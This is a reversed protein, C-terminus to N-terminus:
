EMSKLWAVTRTLVEQYPRHTYGLEREAKSVDYYGYRGFYTRAHRRTFLPPKGTLKSVMELLLGAVLGSRRGARFRPPRHGSLRAITGLMEAITINDGGLIYREGARGKEEALLHGTAVDEVDVVNAGGDYYFPSGKFMAQKVIANSPTLRYDGPGLVLTPNVIILSLGLEGAIERATRESVTKATVYSPAVASTNHDAETRIRLASESLGIAAASSTYVVKEVGTAACARLVNKSGEIATRMVLSPDKSWMTYLAAAHYVVECGEAAKKASDTDLVDGQFLSVDLDRLGRLDSTPRVFVRVRRGRALLKRVIHSGIHGSAGTVLIPRDAPSKM